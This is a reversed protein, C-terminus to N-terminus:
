CSNEIVINQTYTGRNLAPPIVVGFYVGNSGGGPVLIYTQAFNGPDLQLRNGVFAGASTPNWLTNTVFFSNAGFIWNSGDVVINAAVTGGANTDTILNTTPSASGPTLAPFGIATNGTLSIGCSPALTAWSIYQSNAAIVTGSAPSPTYTTGNYIQTAVSFSFSGGITNFVVTNFELPAVYVSLLRGTPTQGAACYDFGNYTACGLGYVNAPYPTSTATDWASLGGGNPLIAAFSVNDSQVVVDGGGGVCYDYNRYISCSLHEANFTYANTAQWSKLGGTSIVNAFYVNAFSYTPGNSGSVCYDYGGAINCSLSQIFIPYSNTAQWAGLGAGGPLVSAYEVTNGGSGGVCYDYGQFISCSTSQINIPYSNTAQWAGVGGWSFVNAFYVANITVGNGYIGGVCYDYGGYINCPLSYVNAPYSNTTQWTGLATGGSIINAFYVANQTISAALGNVCYDYGGSISCTVYSLKVPLANTSLWPTTVNSTNLIGDYIVNWPQGLVLNNQTFYTLLGIGTYAQGNYTLVNTATASDTVVLNYTFTGTGWAPNQTYTFTNTASSVGAYTVSTVLGLSNFVTYSYTFPANDGTVTATLTQVGLEPLLSNSATYSISGVGYANYTQGNYSAATGLTDVVVLNYTFTGTGWLANQVFTFTNPTSSTTYLANAVLGLSNYVLFNYTYAPTGGSASASLIQIQNGDIITNYATYSTIGVSPTGPTGFSASPFINFPPTFRVRTWYVVVNVGTEGGVDDFYGIGAPQATTTGYGSTYPNTSLASIPMSGEGGVPSNGVFDVLTNSWLSMVTNGSQPITDYVAIPSAGDATEINAALTTVQEVLINKTATRPTALLSSEYGLRINNAITPVPVTWDWDISANIINWTSVSYIGEGTMSNLTGVLILSNQAIINTGSQGIAVTWLNPNVKGGTAGGGGTVFNDYFPFVNAGNDLNGYIYTFNAIVGTHIGDFNVTNAYWGLYIIQTGGNAAISNTLQIWWRTLTNSKTCNSECWM